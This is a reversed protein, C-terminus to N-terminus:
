HKKNCKIMEELHQQYILEAEKIMTQYFLKTTKGKKNGGCLVIAKRQPDFIYFIRFVNNKASVRLEKLNPYKSGIITDAYPRALNPGEISLINLMALVKEVEIETLTELFALVPAKVIIEWQEKM